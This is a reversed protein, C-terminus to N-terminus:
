DDDDSEDCGPGGEDDDDDDGGPGGHDNDDDDNNVGGPSSHDHDDDCVGPGAVDDKTDEHKLKRVVLAGAVRDCTMEVLDGVAFGALAGSTPVKCTVSRKASEVTLPSLSTLKGKIEVEDDDARPPSSTSLTQSSVISVNRALVRAGDGRARLTSGRLEVRQGVRIASLSGPVRLAFAQRAAKVTVLSSAENKTAITGQVRPSSKGEATAPLILLTAALAALLFRPMSDTRESIYTM